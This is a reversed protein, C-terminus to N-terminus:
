KHVWENIWRDLWGIYKLFYWRDPFVKNFEKDGQLM